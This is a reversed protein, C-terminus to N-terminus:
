VPRPQPLCRGQRELWYVINGAIAVSGSVVLSAAATIGAAALMVACGHNSCGQIAAVQVPELTMQKALLGCDPDYSARTVPVMVCGALLCAAAIPVLRRAV